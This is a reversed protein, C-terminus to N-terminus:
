RGWAEVFFVTTSINTANALEAQTKYNQVVLKKTSPIYYGGGIPTAEAGSGIKLNVQADDIIRLGFASPKVEYGGTPYSSDGTVEALIRRKAGVVAKTKVVVSAAM